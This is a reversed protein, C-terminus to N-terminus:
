KVSPVTYYVVIKPSRESDLQDLRIKMRYIDNFNGKLEDGNFIRLGQNSSPSTVWSQLQQTVNFTVTDGKVKGTLWRYQDTSEFGILYSDTENLGIGGSKWDAPNTTVRVTQLTRSAGTVWGTETTDIIMTM